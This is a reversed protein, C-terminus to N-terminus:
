VNCKEMVKKALEMYVKAMDSDPCAEIVTKGQNEAIQVTGDRPVVQM